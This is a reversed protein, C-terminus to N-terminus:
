EKDVAYRTNIDIDDSAEMFHFWKASQEWNSLQRWLPVSTTATKWKDYLWESFLKMSQYSM